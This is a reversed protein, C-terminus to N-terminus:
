TRLPRHSNADLKALEADVDVTIIGFYNVNQSHAPSIHTLLDDPIERGQSRM